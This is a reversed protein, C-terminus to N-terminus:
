RSEGNKDGDRDKPAARTMRPGQSISASLSSPLRDLSGRHKQVQVAHLSCLAAQRSQAVHSPSRLVATERVTSCVTQDCGRSAIRQQARPGNPSLASSLSLGVPGGLTPAGVRADLGSLEQQTQKKGDRKFGWAGDENKGGRREKKDVKSRRVVDGDVATDKGKGRGVEVKAKRVV